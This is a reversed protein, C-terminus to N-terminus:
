PKDEYSFLARFWGQRIQDRSITSYFAILELISCAFSINEYIHHRTHTHTTSYEHKDNNLIDPTEDSIATNSNRFKKGTDEPKHHAPHPFVPLPLSSARFLRINLPVQLPPSSYHRAVIKLLENGAWKLDSSNLQVPESNPLM